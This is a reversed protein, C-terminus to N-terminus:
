RKINAHINQCEKLPSRIEDAYGITLFRKDKRRDKIKVVTKNKTVGNSASRKVVAQQKSDSKDQVVQKHIISQKSAVNPSRKKKIVNTNYSPSKRPKTTAKLTTNSPSKDRTRNLSATTPAAYHKDSERHHQPALSKRGRPTQPALSKRGGPTQPALSKRPTRGPTPPPLM